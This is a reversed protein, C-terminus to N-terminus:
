HNIFCWAGNLVRYLLVFFGLFFLVLRFGEDSESPQCFAGGPSGSRPKKIGQLDFSRKCLCWPAPCMWMGCCGLIM